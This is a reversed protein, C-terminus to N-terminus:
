GRTLAGLLCGPVQERDQLQALAEDRASSAEGLKAKLALLQRKAKTLKQKLEAEM